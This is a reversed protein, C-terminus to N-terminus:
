KKCNIKDDLIINEIINSSSEVIGNKFQVRSNYYIYGEKRANRVDLYSNSESEIKGGCIYIKGIFNDVAFNTVSLIYAGNIYIDGTASTENLVGRGNQNYICIGTDNELEGCKEAISGNIYINGSKYNLVAKNQWINSSNVDYSAIYVKNNKDDINILGGSM